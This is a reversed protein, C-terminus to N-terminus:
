TLSHEYSLERQKEDLATEKDSEQVSEREEQLADFNPAPSCAIMGSFPKHLDSCLSKLEKISM